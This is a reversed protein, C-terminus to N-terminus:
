KVGAPARSVAGRESRSVGVRAASTQCDHIMSMNSKFILTSQRLAPVTFDAGKPVDTCDRLWIKMVCFHNKPSLSVGNVVNSCRERDIMTETLMGECVAVWVADLEENSVKISVAGGSRNEPDDWSPFVHERMLFFIGKSWMGRLAAQLGWFEAARSITGLLRYSRHTWDTDRPDHFYLAWIDDMCEAAADEAGGIAGTVAAAMAEGGGDGGGGCDVDGVRESLM